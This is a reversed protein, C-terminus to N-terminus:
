PNKKKERELRLKEKLTKAEYKSRNMNYRLENGNKMRIYLNVRDINESHSLALNFLSKVEDDFEM